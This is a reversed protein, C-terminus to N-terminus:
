IAVWVVSKFRKFHGFYNVEDSTSIDVELKFLLFCLFTKYFDSGTM